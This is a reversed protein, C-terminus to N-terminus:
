GLMNQSPIKRWVMDRAAHKQQASIGGLGKCAKNHEKILKEEVASIGERNRHSKKPVLEM